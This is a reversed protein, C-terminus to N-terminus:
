SEVCRLDQDYAVDVLQREVLVLLLRAPCTSPPHSIEPIVFKWDPWDVVTVWPPLSGNAFAAFLLEPRFQSASCGSLETGIQDSIGVSRFSRRLEEIGGRESYATRVSRRRADPCRKPVRTGVTPCRKSLSCLSRRVCQAQLKSKLGEVCEVMAIRVRNVRVDSLPVNPWTLPHCSGRM